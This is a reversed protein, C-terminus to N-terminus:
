DTENWGLKHLALTFAAVRAQGASADSQFNMLVGIRRAGTPRQACAAFPWM